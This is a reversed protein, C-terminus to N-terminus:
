EIANWRDYASQRVSIMQQVNLRELQALYHEWETLPVDGMIFKAEMQGVYNDLDIFMSLTRQEETTFNVEPYAFRLVDLHGSAFIQDELWQNRYDAGIAVLSVLDSSLYPVNLPTHQMRWNWFGSASGIEIRSDMEGNENEFLEWGGEIGETGLKPGLRVAALGEETFFYDILRVVAEPYPCADTIAACGASRLLVSQERIMPVDNASSTLAPIMQYQMWDEDAVGLGYITGHTMGARMEAYKANIQESTQLFFEPDLLGEVYLRNMYTLYDLYAPQMPVYLYQDDRVDHLPDVFGLASLVVLRSGYAVMPIEDAKGNGNPDQEKFAKLAIYLEDLNTPMDLGAAELWKANIFGSLGNRDREIDVFTPFAYISGDPFRVSKAAIPNKDLQYQLNPAYTRIMEAWSIFIGQPGFVNEDNKTIGVFFVDPYDGTALALNKKEEYGASEVADWVLKINTKELVHKTFWMDNFDGNLPARPYMVSIEVAQKAIPYGQANLYDPTGEALVAAALIMTLSLTLAVMRSLHKM